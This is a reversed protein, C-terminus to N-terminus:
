AELPPYFTEVEHGLQKLAKELLNQHVHKGGIKILKSNDASVLAIKM